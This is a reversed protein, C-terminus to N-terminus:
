TLFLIFVIVFIITNSIIIPKEVGIDAILPCFNFKVAFFDDYWNGNKSEGVGTQVYLPDIGPGM